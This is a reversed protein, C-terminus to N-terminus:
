RLAHGCADATTVYRPRIGAADAEGGAGAGDVLCTPGRGSDLYVGAEDM